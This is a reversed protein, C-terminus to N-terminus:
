LGGLPVKDEMLKVTVMNYSSYRPIQCKYRVGRVLFADNQSLKRKLIKALHCADLTLVPANGVLMTKMSGASVDLPANSFFARLIHTKEMDHAFLTVDECIGGNDGMIAQMDKQMSLALGQM